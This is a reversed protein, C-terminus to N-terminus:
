RAYNLFVLGDYSFFVFSNKRHLLFDNPFQILKQFSVVHRDMCVIMKNIMHFIPLADHLTLTYIVYSATDNLCFVAYSSAVHSSNLRTSKRDLEEVASQFNPKDHM